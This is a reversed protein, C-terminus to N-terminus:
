PHPAKLKRCRWGPSAKQIEFEASEAFSLAVDVLTDKPRRM